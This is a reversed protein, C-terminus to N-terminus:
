HKQFAACATLVCAYHVANPQTVVTASQWNVLVRFLRSLIALSSKIYKGTLLLTLALWSKLDPRTSTGARELVQWLRNCRARCCLHYLCRTLSKHFLVATKYYYIARAQTSVQDFHPRMTSDSQLGAILAESAASHEKLQLLAVGKQLYARPQSPQLALSADLDAVADRLSSTNYAAAPLCQLRASARRFLVRALQSEWSLRGKVDEQAVKSLLDSALSYM